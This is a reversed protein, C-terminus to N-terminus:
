KKTPPPKPPDVRRPLQSVREPDTAVTILSPRRPLQREFDIAAPRQVDERKITMEDGNELTHLTSKTWGSNAKKPNPIYSYILAHTTSRHVVFDVHFTEAEGPEIHGCLNPFIRYDERPWPTQQHLADPPILHGDERLTAETSPDLPLIRDLSFEASDIHLLVNGTNTLTVELHVLRRDFPFAAITVTHAITARPYPDRKRIYLRYTWFGGALFAASTLFAQLTEAFTKWDQLGISALWRFFPHIVAMAKSLTRAM